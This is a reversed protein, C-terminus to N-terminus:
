NADYKELSRGTWLRGSYPLNQRLKVKIRSNGAGLRGPRLFIGYQGWGNPRSMGHWGGRGTGPALRSTGNPFVYEGLVEFGLLNVYFEKTRAYDACNIATHHVTELM